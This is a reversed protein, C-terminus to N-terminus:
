NDLGLKERLIQRTTDVGLRSILEALDAPIIAAEARDRRTIFTIRDHHLADDMTKRSSAQFDVVRITAPQQTTSM